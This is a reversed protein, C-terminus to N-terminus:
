LERRFDNPAFNRLSELLAPDMAIEHSYNLHDRSVFENLFSTENNRRTHLRQHVRPRLRSESLANTDPNLPVDAAIM